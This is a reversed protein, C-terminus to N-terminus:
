LAARLRRIAPRLPSRLLVLDRAGRLAHGPNHREVKRYRTIMGDLSAEPEFGARQLTWRLPLDDEYLHWANEPSRPRADINAYLLGGPVLLARLREVTAAFDPVHALTDIATIVEFPGGPWDRSTDVQPLSQGRRELRFRTFEMLPTAVDALVVEYGLAAFMQGTVGVGAGFDLLRGPTGQLDCAIVASTPYAHGSAQLFAYWLLDFTWSRASRYFDLIGEQTDRQGAQWESVSEREWGLCRQLAEETSIGHFLALESLVASRPDSEGPLRLAGRYAGIASSTWASWQRPTWGATEPHASSSGPDAHLGQALFARRELTAM